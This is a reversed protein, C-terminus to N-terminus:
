NPRTTVAPNGFISAEMVVERFKTPDFDGISKATLQVRMTWIERADTGSEDEFYLVLDGSRNLTTFASYNERTLATPATYIVDVTDNDQIGAPTQPLIIVGNLSVLSQPINPDDVFFDTGLTKTSAAVKVSAITVGRKGILFAEGRRATFSFPSGGSGSAQTDDANKTGLLFLKAVSAAFQDTTISWVPEVMYNDRRFLTGKGRKYLPISVSKPSLDLKAMTINGFPIYSGAGDEKFFGLATLREVSALSTFEM